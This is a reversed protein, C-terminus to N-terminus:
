SMRSMVHCEESNTPGFPILHSTDTPNIDYIKKVYNGNTLDEIFVKSCSRVDAFHELRSIRVAHDTKNKITVTGDGNVPVVKGVIWPQPTERRRSIAVCEESQFDM